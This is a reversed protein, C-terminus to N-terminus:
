FHVHELSAEKGVDNMTWFHADGHPVKFVEMLHKFPGGAIPELMKAVNYVRDVAEPDNTFEVTGNVRLQKSEMMEPAHNYFCLEVNPNNHMQQSMEKNPFTEFYFGSEDAFMLMVTRVHPQDGDLTALSCVPHQNAFEICEQYNM